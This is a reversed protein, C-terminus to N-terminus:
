AGRKLLKEVDKIDHASGSLYTDLLEKAQTVPGNCNLQHLGDLVARMCETQVFLEIKLEQMKAEADTKNEEIKSTLEANNEEQKEEMEALKKDYRAVIKERESYIELLGEDWKKEKEKIIKAAYEMEKRKDHDEDSAKKIEWIKKGAEWLIIIVALAQFIYSFTLQSIDSLLVGM